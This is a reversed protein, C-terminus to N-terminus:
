KGWTKEIEHSNPTTHSELSAAESLAATRSAAPESAWVSEASWFDSPQFPFVLPLGAMTHKLRIHKQISFPKDVAYKNIPYFNIFTKCSKWNYSKPNNNM